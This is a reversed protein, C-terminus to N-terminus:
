GTDSTAPQAPGLQVPCPPFAYYAFTGLARKAVCHLRACKTRHEIRKTHANGSRHAPPLYWRFGPPQVCRMVEFANQTHTFTLTHTKTLVCM